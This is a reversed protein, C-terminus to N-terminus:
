SVPRRGNLTFVYGATGIVPCEALVDHAARSLPISHAIKSRYRAAPVTWIEGDLESRVM